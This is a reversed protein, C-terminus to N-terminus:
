RTRDNAGDTPAATATATPQDSPPPTAAADSGSDSGVDLGLRERVSEVFAPQDIANLTEVFRTRLPSNAILRDRLAPWLSEDRDFAELLRRLALPRDAQPLDLVELLRDPADAPTPETDSPTATPPRDTTTTASPRAEETPRADAAAARQDSVAVADTTRPTDVIREDRIPPEVTTAERDVLVLSVIGGAVDIDLQVRLTELDSPLDIARTRGNTELIARGAGAPGDIRRIVLTYRGREIGYFRFVQAGDGPDTASVGAIQQYTVGSPLAGTAAGNEAQLSAVFPGEIRLTAPADTSAHPRSDVIRQDTARLVQGPELTTRDQGAAVEVLGSATTVSTVGDTVATEFITGHAEILADPTRVTYTALTNSPAVDNWIRGTLQNLTIRRSDDGGIAELTVDTQPNLAATSGDPFTVLAMGANTTRLRVGENLTAGDTLPLWEGDEFREVAGGFVTLTSASATSGGTSLVFFVAVIALVAAPAAVATIRPAANALGSFWGSVREGLTGQQPRPQQQPTAAISAMLAARRVPDPAREAVPPLDRMAIAMELLPALEDRQEPWRDLAEDISFGGVAIDDLCRDVIAELSLDADHHDTEHRDPTYEDTM